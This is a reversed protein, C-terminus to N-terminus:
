DSGHVPVWVLASGETTLYLYILKLQQKVCRKRAEKRPMYVPPLSEDPRCALCRARSCPCGYGSSKGFPGLFWAYDRRAVLFVWTFTSSFVSSTVVGGLMDLAVSYYFFHQM